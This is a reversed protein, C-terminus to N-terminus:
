MEVAVATVRLLGKQFGFTNTQKRFDRVAKSRHSRHSRFGQNGHSQQFKGTKVRCM